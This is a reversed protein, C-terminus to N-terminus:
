GARTDLDRAPHSLVISDAGEIRISDAAVNVFLVRKKPARSLNQRDARSFFRARASTLLLLARPRRTGGQLCPKVADPRQKILEARM